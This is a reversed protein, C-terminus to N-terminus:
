EETRYKFYLVFWMAGILILASAALYAKLKGVNTPVDFGAVYLFMLGTLGVVAGYVLFPEVKGGLIMEGRERGLYVYLPIVFLVFCTFAMPDALTALFGILLVAKLWDLSM